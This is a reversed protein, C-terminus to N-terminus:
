NIFFHEDCIEQYNTYYRRYVISKIFIESSVFGKLLPPQRKTTKTIITGAKIKKIGSKLIDLADVPNVEQKNQLLSMAFRSQRKRADHFMPDLYLCETEDQTHMSFCAPHFYFHTYLDPFKQQFYYIFIQPFIHSEYAIVNINNKLLLMSDLSYGCTADTVQEFRRGKRSFINKLAPNNKNLLSSASLINSKSYFTLDSDTLVFYSDLADKEQDSWQIPLNFDLKSENFGIYLSTSM